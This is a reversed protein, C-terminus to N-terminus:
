VYQNYFERLTRGDFSTRVAEFLAELSQYLAEISREDPFNPSGGPM